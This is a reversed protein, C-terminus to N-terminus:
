IEITLENIEKIGHKILKFRMKDAYAQPCHFIVHFPVAKASPSDDNLGSAWDEATNILTEAFISFHDAHLTSIHDIKSTLLEQSDIIIVLYTEKVLWDLDNICEDFADWNHGFYSPFQLGRQFEKFLVSTTRCKRGNIFTVHLNGDLTNTKFFGELKSAEGAFLHFFPSATKYFFDLNVNM